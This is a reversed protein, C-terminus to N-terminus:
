RTATTLSEASATMEPKHNEGSPHTSQDDGAHDLKNFAAVVKPDLHHSSLRASVIRRM